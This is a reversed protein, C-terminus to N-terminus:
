ENRVAVLPDVRSARRAPIYTAILTMLILATPALVVLPWHAGGLGALGSQLARTVLVSAVGGCALGIGTLVLGQRLVMRMVDARSAGIAMRIGIERTRCAVSYAILGYLGILALVVGIGAMTGVTQVLGRAMSLARQEYFSAMSRVNYLPQKPDLERVIDRLPAVLPAPDAATSQVVLTMRSRSHQALPLYVFPRPPEALFVYTGTQAIGVVTMWPTADGALRIRKGIADQGPWYMQAFQQNVVVVPQTDAREASSFGRGRLLRTGITEFFLDGVTATMVALAEQGPPLSYGEPVVNEGERSQDLPLAGTLTASAVGPVSQARDVLERLFRVSEENSRGVLSTDVTMALLHDTRFGPNLTLSRRFGDLVIGAAVLLAFCLAIQAVVLASRGPMRLRTSVPASRKLAAILDTRLSQWAPAVGFLLTSAATVALTFLLLRLDLHPEIVVPLDTPIQIPKLQTQALLLGLVCGCAALLASETLLQRFLRGRSVGLALRIGVERSRARARGLLLNAVNACAIALVISVLTLLMLMLQADEPSQRLRAELDTRLTVALNRNVDPYQQVLGAWAAETEQQAQRRSVGNKLRGRMEFARADRDDIPDADTGGLRPATVAPIFFAPRIYQDMGTFREPAVGIVKFGVGNIWLARGVISRDGGLEGQWFDHGLVVVPDRGAVRAEDVAFTRGIAAVVGIVDFFNDSVEMGMRMDPVVDRSAAFSFTALQYAIVGDFGSARERFDRYNPYSVQGIGNGEGPRSVDLSLLRDPERIGLPRFLLADAISFISANTGIGIGISLMAVATFGPARAFLRLGHRLDQRLDSLVRFGWAQRTREIASAVSGFEAHAIRDADAPSMGRQRLDQSRRELHFAIEDQADRDRWSPRFAHMVGRIVWTLWRM